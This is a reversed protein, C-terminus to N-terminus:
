YSVGEGGSRHTRIFVSDSQSAERSAVNSLRPNLYGGYKRFILFGFKLMITLKYM